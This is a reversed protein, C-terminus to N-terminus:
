SITVNYPPSQPPQRSLWDKAEEESSFEMNQCVGLSNSVEVVTQVALKTFVHESLLSAIYLYQNPALSALKLVIEAGVWRQDEPAVVGMARADVLVRQAPRRTIAQVLQLNAERFEASTGKRKYVLYVAQLVENYGTLAYDTESYIM